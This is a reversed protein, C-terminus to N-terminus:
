LQECAQSGQTEWPQMDSSCRRVSLLCLGCQGGPANKAVASYPTLPVLPEAPMLTGTGAPVGDYTRRAELGPSRRPLIERPSAEEHPCVLDDNAKIRIIQDNGFFHLHLLKTFLLCKLLPTHFPDRLQALLSLLGSQFAILPREM